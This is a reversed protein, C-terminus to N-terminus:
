SGWREREGGSYTTVPGLLVLLINSTLYCKLLILQEEEEKPKKGDPTAVASKWRWNSRDEADEEKVEVEGMDEKM